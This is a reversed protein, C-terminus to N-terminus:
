ILIFFLVRHKFLKFKTHWDDIFRIAVAPARGSLLRDGMKWVRKFKNIELFMFVSLFFALLSDTLRLVYFYTMQKKCKKCCKLWCVTLRRLFSEVRSQLNNSLDRNFLSNSNVLVTVTTFTLKPQFLQLIVKKFISATNM